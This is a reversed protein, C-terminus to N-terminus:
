PRSFGEDLCAPGETRICFNTDYINCKYMHCFQEMDEQTLCESNSDVYQYMVTGSQYLHQMQLSHGIEHMAVARYHAETEIRDRVLYIIPISREDDYFGVITLHTVNDKNIIYPDYHNIPQVFIIQLKTNYFRYTKLKTQLENDEIVDFEVINNTAYAWEKASDIIIDKEIQTFDKNLVLIELLKGRSDLKIENYLNYDDSLNKKPYCITFLVIIIILITTLFKLM